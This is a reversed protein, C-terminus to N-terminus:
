DEQSNALGLDSEILNLFSSKQDGFLEQFRRDIKEAEEPDDVEVTDDSSMDNEDSGSSSFDDSNITHYRDVHDEVWEEDSNENEFDSWDDNKFKKSRKRRGKERKKDAKTM